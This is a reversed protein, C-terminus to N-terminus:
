KLLLMRITRVVSGARLRCIYVGSSLSKGEFKVRHHGANQQKDVLTEVERGLMDYVKLDVYAQQPLDYSIMTSPNFPNPYNSHLVPYEPLRTDDIGHNNGPTIWDGVAFAPELLWETTSGDTNLLMIKLDIGTSDEGTLEDLMYIYEPGTIKNGSRWEPAIEKWKDSSSKKLCVRTSEPLLNTSNVSFRLKVSKGKGISSIAAGTSDIISLSNFSPPGAISKDVEFVSTLTARGWTGAVLYNNNSMVLKCRGASASFPRFDSLRGATIIDDRSDYVAYSAKYRDYERQEHMQGFFSATLSVTYDEKRSFLFRLSPYVAGDGFNMTGNNPSYCIGPPEEFLYCGISDERTRFLYSEFWTESGAFACISTTFGYSKDSEPTIFLEGKWKRDTIYDDRALSSLISNQTRICHYVMARVGDMRPPLTIGINQRLFDRPSNRLRVGENMGTMVPYQVVWIKKEENPSQRFQGACVTVAAPVSSTRIVDQNKFSYIHADDGANDPLVFILSNLTNNFDSLKRGRDDVGEFLMQKTAEDFNIQMTRSGQIEVQDMFIFSYENKGDAPTVNTFYMLFKGKPMLLEMRRYDGSIWANQPYFSKDRGKITFFSFPKDFEISLIPSKVFAWPLRLREQPSYLTVFGGYSVTNNSEPIINNDVSLTFVVRQSEGPQLIFTEPYALLKIGNFIGSVSVTYKRSQRSKNSILVTDNKRWDHERDDDVGFSIQSPESFTTASAAKLADIRGSGQLMVNLAIDKASSVIASKIRAPSWDKHMHKLLACVGAVHPCAMSTGSSKTYGGGASTSTVDVGPALVDPKIFYERKVPGGSSFGALGDQKDSAGATIALGACAPTGISYYGSNNGASVCVVVGLRVANNVAEAMPGDPGGGPSGLSMNVVDVRDGFDNDSNPDVAREIGAIIDSEQGAGYSNLVKFVMILSKPAVGKLTRGNASIIGAVITGHGNNDGLDDSNNVFDYGGIVKYGKGIGGGLDPHMYDVGTDLIGVVISDGQDGYKYWVSDAKILRVTQDLDIKVKEELRIKKVYPLASISYFLARPIKYGAGNFLKYFERKKQPAEPTLGYAKCANLHLALIDASLQRQAANYSAPATKYLGPKYMVACLPADKLEIIVDIMEAM